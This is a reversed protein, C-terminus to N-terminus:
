LNSGIDKVRNNLWEIDIFARNTSLYYDRIATNVMLGNNSYWKNGWM